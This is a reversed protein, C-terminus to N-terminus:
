DHGAIGGKGTDRTPVRPDGGWPLATCTSRRLTYQRQHSVSCAWSWQARGRGGRTEGGGQSDEALPQLPVAAAKVGTRRTKLAAVLAPLSLVARCGCLVLNMVLIPRLYPAKAVGGPGESTPLPALGTRRPATSSTKPSDLGVRSRVTGPVRTQPKPYFLM